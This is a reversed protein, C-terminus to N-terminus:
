VVKGVLADYVEIAQETAFAAAWDHFDMDLGSQEDYYESEWLDALAPFFDNPNNGLADTVQEAFQEILLDQWDSQECGANDHLVMFAARKLEDMIPDTECFPYEGNM